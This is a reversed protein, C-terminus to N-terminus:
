DIESIMPAVLLNTVVNIYGKMIARWMATGQYQAYAM